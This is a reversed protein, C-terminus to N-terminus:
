PRVFRARGVDHDDGARVRHGQVTEKPFVRRGDHLDKRLTKLADHVEMGFSMVEDTEYLGGSIISVVRFQSGVKRFVPAGSSGFITECSFGFVRGTRGNMRCSEQRSLTEKRGRGYSVVSVQDHYDLAGSTQFPAATDLPISDNLQLLALDRAIRSAGDAETPTYGEMIVAQRVPSEAVAEGHRLGARFTIRRPDIREGASYLCHAATLVLDNDVLVGTCFGLGAIDLRGVGEFGLTDTRLDLSRLPTDAWM